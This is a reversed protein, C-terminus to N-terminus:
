DRGARPPRALVFLEAARHGGLPRHWKARIQDVHPRQGGPEARRELIGAPPRAVLEELADRGLEAGVDDRRPVRAVILSLRKQQAQETAGPRPPQATNM